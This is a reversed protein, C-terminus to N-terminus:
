ALQSRVASVSATPSEPNPVSQVEFGTKELVQKVRWLPAGYQSHSEVILVEVSEPLEPIAVLEAGEIDMECVRCGAFENLNVQPADEGNYVHVAEGAVGRVLDVNDVGNQVLNRETVQLQTRSGDVVTVQEVAAAIALASVGVGAGLMLVHDSSVVSQELLEIQVQEYGEGPRSLDLLKDPGRLDYGRIENKRYPLYPRLRDNYVRRAALYLSM